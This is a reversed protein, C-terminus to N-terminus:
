FWGLAGDKYKSLLLHLEYQPPTVANGVIREQQIQAKLKRILAADDDSTIYYTKGRYHEYPFSHGFTIKEGTFLGCGSLLLAATTVLALQQIKM